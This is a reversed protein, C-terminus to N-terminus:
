RCVKSSFRSFAYEDNSKKFDVREDKDQKLLGEYWFVAHLAELMKINYDNIKNM